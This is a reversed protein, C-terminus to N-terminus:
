GPNVPAGVPAPDGSTPTAPGAVALGSRLAFLLQEIAREADKIKDRAAARSLVRKKKRNTADRAASMLDYVQCSLDEVWCGVQVADHLRLPVPFKSSGHHHAVTAM